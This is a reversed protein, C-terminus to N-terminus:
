YKDRAFEEEDLETAKRLSIDAFAAITGGAHLRKAPLKAWSRRIGCIFFARPKGRANATM